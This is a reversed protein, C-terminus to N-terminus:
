QDSYLDQKFLLRVLHISSSRHLQPSRFSISDILPVLLQSQEPRVNVRRVHQIQYKRICTHHSNSLGGWM